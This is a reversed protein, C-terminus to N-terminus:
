VYDKSLLARVYGRDKTTSDIYFDHKYYCYILSSAKAATHLFLKKVGAKKMAEDVANLMVNGIGRNQFKPSVAFRSLYATKDPLINIRVSGVIMGNLSAVFVEKTQIDMEIDKYTEKLAELNDNKIVYKSYQKFAEKTIRSIDEIDELSAKRVEISLLVNDKKPINFGSDDFLDLIKIERSSCNLNKNRLNQM